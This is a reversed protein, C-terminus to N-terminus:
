KSHYAVPLCKRHGPPTLRVSEILQLESTPDPARQRRVPQGTPFLDANSGLPGDTLRKDQSGNGNCSAVLLIEVGGQIPSRTWRLTVGLLLNALVWKYVQQTSLPVILTFDRAWSCLM